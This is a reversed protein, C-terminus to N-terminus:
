SKLASLREYAMQILRDTEDWDVCADTVSIGYKLKSKDEPIPQNGAGLNSELMMGAISTEGNELQKLVSKWVIEQREHKKGSNAHSCDVVLRSNVKREGMLWKTDAVCKAEFNPSHRGGRLILHACDNGSTTVVCTAGDQDIGLFSHPHKASVMAEIAIQLNGDTTNKFGVPMSLGSAIERHTQSETTRAGIAAWSILDSLYQPVIPDLVESAIPLGIKLIRNMISRGKELGESLSCTGDLHPDTILGRWGITTRPKEFYVRMVICLQDKYKERLAYLKEAYEIAAKEDHISCPGVLLLLRNDKGNLINKIEERSQFVLESEKDELPVKAKLQNPSILPETNVVHLDQTQKM